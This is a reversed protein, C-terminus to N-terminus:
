LCFPHLFQPKEIYVITLSVAKKCCHLTSSRLTPPPSVLQSRRTRVMHWTCYIKGSESSRFLRRFLIYFCYEELSLTQLLEPLTPCYFQTSKVMHMFQRNRLLIYFCYEELSETQPLTPLLAPLTPCYFQNSFWRASNNHSSYPRNDYRM